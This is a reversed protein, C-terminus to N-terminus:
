DEALYYSVAYAWIYFLGIILSVLIAVLRNDDAITLNNMWLAAIIIGTKVVHMIMQPTISGVNDKKIVGASGVMAIIALTIIAMIGDAFLVLQLEVLTHPFVYAYGMLSLLVIFNIVIKM